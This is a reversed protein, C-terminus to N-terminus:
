KKGIDGLFPSSLSSHDSLSGSRALLGDTRGTSTTRFDDSLETYANDRNYLEPPEYNEDEEDTYVKEIYGHRGRGRTDTPISLDEESPDFWGASSGIILTLVLGFGLLVLATVVKSRSSIVIAM